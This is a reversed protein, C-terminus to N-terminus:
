TAIDQWGRCYYSRFLQFDRFIITISGVNSLSLFEM